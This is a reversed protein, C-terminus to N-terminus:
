VASPNICRKRRLAPALLLLLSFLQLFLHTPRGRLPLAVTSCMDLWFRVFFTVSVQAEFQVDDEEDEEEDADRLSIPLV